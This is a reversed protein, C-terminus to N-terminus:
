HNLLKRFAEEEKGLKPIVNIRGNEKDKKKIQVDNGISSWLSEPFFDAQKGSATFYIKGDSNINFYMKLSKGQYRLAEGLVIDGDFGLLKLMKRYQYETNCLLSEGSKKIESKQISAHPNIEQQIKAESRCKNAIANSSDAIIEKGIIDGNVPNVEGGVMKYGFQALDKILCVQGNPLQVLDELAHLVLEAAALQREELTMEALQQKMTKKRFKGNVLRGKIEDVPFEIIKESDNTM